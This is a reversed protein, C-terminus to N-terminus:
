VSKPKNQEVSADEEIVPMDKSYKAMMMMFHIAKFLDKNDYGNKRGYRFAYKIVNGRLYDLTDANSMIFEAPQISGSYHESYTNKIHKELEKLFKDEEYKM